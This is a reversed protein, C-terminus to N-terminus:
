GNGVLGKINDWVFWYAPVVSGDPANWVSEKSKHAGLWKYFAQANINDQNVLLCLGKDPYQQFCWCAGEILLSKGVGKSQYAKRVHLNDLYSGFDPNEGSYFCAFGVIEEDFEAVLVYQNPKQNIFREAWVEERERPVIGTLYAETLASKYTDRWSSTHIGAIKSADALSAVRINM